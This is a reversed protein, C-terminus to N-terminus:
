SRQLFKIVMGVGVVVAVVTLIATVAAGLNTVGDAGAAAIATSHDAASVYGAAAMTSLAVASKTKFNQFMSM